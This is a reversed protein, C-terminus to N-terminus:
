LSNRLNLRISGLYPIDHQHKYILNIRVGKRTTQKNKGAWHGRIVADGAICGPAGWQMISDKIEYAIDYMRKIGPTVKGSVDTVTDIAFEPIVMKDITNSIKM